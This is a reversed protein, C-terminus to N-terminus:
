DLGPNLIIKGTIQNQEVIRHALAAESLPLTRDLIPRIMGEAAARLSKEVDALHTGAAGFIRLRRMYLRKVDLPVTGGGHAGATVLRGNMALSAFAVPWLTPDAINECVVDVGRGDTLKMVEETLNSNRYNVGFDAGQKLAVAVRDDSGAGAIVTAGLMKAVQVCSNGLAGTAGMVLVWEAPRVEAKSVLLHFAM